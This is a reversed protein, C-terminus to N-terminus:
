ARVVHLAMTPHHRPVLCTMTDLCTHYAFTLSLGRAWGMEISGGWKSTAIWLSHSSVGPQAPTDTQHPVRAARPLPPPSTPALRCWLTWAGTNPQAAPHMDGAQSLPINFLLYFHLPLSLPLYTSSHFLTKWKLLKLPMNEENKFLSSTNQKAGSTVIGYGPSSKQCPM